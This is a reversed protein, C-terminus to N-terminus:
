EKQKWEEEKITLQSRSKQPLEAIEAEQQVIEADEAVGERDRIRAVPEPGKFDTGENIALDSELGPSDEDECDYIDEIKQVIDVM